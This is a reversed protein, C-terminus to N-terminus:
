GLPEQTWDIKKYPRAAKIGRARRAKGVSSPDVGLERALDADTVEGLPQSDWDVYISTIGKKKRAKSVTTPDVGLRNAIVVDSEKGLPQADWDIDLRNRRERTAPIGRKKRARFVSQVAVGLEEALEADTVDGLPQSDWDIWHKPPKYEPLEVDTVSRPLWDDGDVDYVLCLVGDVEFKDRIHWGEAPGVGSPIWRAFKQIHLDEGM